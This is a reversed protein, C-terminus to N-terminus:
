FDFTYFNASRMRFSTTSVPISGTVTVIDVHHEVESSISQIQPSLPFRVRDLQKVSLQAVVVSSVGNIPTGGPVRVGVFLKPSQSAAM